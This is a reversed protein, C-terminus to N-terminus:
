GVDRGWVVIEREVDGTGAELDLGVGVMGAERNRVPDSRVRDAGGGGAAGFGGAAAGTGAAGGDQGQRQAPPPAQRWTPSPRSFGYRAAM